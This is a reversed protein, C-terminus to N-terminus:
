CNDNTDPNQCGATPTVVPDPQGLDILRLEVPTYIAPPNEDMEDFPNDLKIVIFDNGVETITGTYYQDGGYVTQVRNINVLVMLFVAIIFGVLSAIIFQRYRALRMKEMEQQHTTKM